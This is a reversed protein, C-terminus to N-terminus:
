NALSYYADEHISFAGSAFKYFEFVDAPTILDLKIMNGVEAPADQCHSGVRVFNSSYRANSDYYVNYCYQSPVVAEVVEVGEPVSTSFSAGSFTVVVNKGGTNRSATCQVTTDDKQVCYLPFNADEGNVHVAGHLQSKPLQGEVRFVFTVSGGPDNRVQILATSGHGPVVPAAAVSTVMALVALAVLVFQMKKMEYRGKKTNCIPNFIVVGVNYYITCIKV